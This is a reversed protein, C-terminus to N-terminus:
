DEKGALQRIVDVLAQQGLQRIAECQMGKGHLHQEDMVVAWELGLDDVLLQGFAIGFANIFPNPDEKKLDHTDLWQGFAEDLDKLEIIEGEEKGIIQRAKRLNEEIWTM